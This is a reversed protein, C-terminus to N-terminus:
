LISLSNYWVINYNHKRRKFEKKTDLFGIMRRVKNQKKLLKSNNLFKRIFRSNEILSSAVSQLFILRFFRINSISLIFFHLIEYAFPLLIDIEYAILWFERWLLLFFTIKAYFWDVFTFPSHLASVNIIISKNGTSVL